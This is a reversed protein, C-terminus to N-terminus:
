KLKVATGYALIEAASQMIQATQYRVNVVADAGMMEADRVMRRTAEERAEILMETYEKLEGGVIQRLGAIIDKGFWKARITSGQVIGLTESIERGTVYDTNVILINRNAETMTNIRAQNSKQSSSDILYIIIILNCFTILKTIYRATASIPTVSYDFVGYTFYNIQIGSDVLKRPSDYKYSLIYTHTSSIFKYTNHQM